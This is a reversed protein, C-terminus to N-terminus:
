LRGIRYIEEVKPFETGKKTVKASAAAIAFDLAAEVCNNKYEYLKFYVACFATLFTDGAGSFGRVEVKPSKKYFVGEKGCYLGGYEGLTCLIIVGTSNYINLTEAKIQELANDFDLDLNFKRGCYQELEFQNPKIIFPKKENNMCYKLAEGDCDVIFRTNDNQSLNIIDRYISKEIGVPVSGGMFFLDANCLSKEIKKLLEAKESESIIGGAENFETAIGSDTIIKINMRSNCVTRTFDMNINYEKLGRVFTDGNDGGIFGYATSEVGLIKFMCSVNTGKGGITTVSERDTKARNLAGIKINDDFYMTRDLAPNLTLTAIKM